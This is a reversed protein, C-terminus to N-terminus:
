LAGCTGPAGQWRGQWMGWRDRVDMCMGDRPIWPTGEAVCRGTVCVRTACFAGRTRPVVRTRGWVCPVAVWPGGGDGHYGEVIASTVQVGLQGPDAAGGGPGVGGGEFVVVQVCTRPLPACPLLVGAMMMRTVIM